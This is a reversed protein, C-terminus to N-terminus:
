FVLIADRRAVLIVDRRSKPHLLRDKREVLIKDRVPCNEDPYENSFSDNDAINVFFIHLKKIEKRM